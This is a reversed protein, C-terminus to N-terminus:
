WSLSRLNKKISHVSSSYNDTVTVCRFLKLQLSKKKDNM